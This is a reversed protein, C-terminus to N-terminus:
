KEKRFKIASVIVVVLMLIASIIAIYFEASFPTVFFIMVLSAILLFLALKALLSVDKFDM